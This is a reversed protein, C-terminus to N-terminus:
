RLRPGFILGGEIWRANASGERVLGLPEFNRAYVEDYNGVQMIVRHFANPALGMASQFEDDTVGYLRSLQPDSSEPDFNALFEQANESTSGAEDAIIMAFVTWNVVDAFEADGQRYMPGRREMSIPAAPFIAWDTLANNDARLNVLVSGQLVLIGCTGEIFAEGASSPDVFTTFTTGTLSAGARATAGILNQESAMGEYSCVVEGDIDGVTSEDTFGDAVRGMLQQGDFYTTPGFDGQDETDRPQTWTIGQLVDVEGAALAAIGESTSLTVVDVATADGLIAAATAHCMDVDFGVIPGDVTPASFGVEVGSVGCALQGRDQITQVLGEGITLDVSDLSDFGDDSRSDASNTPEATGGDNSADDSCAVGIVSWALAVGLIRSSLPKRM